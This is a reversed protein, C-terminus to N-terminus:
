QAYKAAPTFIIYGEHHRFHKAMHTRQLKGVIDAISIGEIPDCCINESERFRMNDDSKIIRTDDVVIVDREFHRKNYRIIDLEELVPMKATDDSHGYMEPLHADLWFLSPGEVQRCMEPLVDVSKGHFVHAGPFREKCHEIWKLGIDCTYISRLKLRLAQEIGDGEYCGTEILTGLGFTQILSEIGEIHRLQTM